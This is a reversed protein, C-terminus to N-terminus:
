LTEVPMGIELLGLQKEPDSMKEGLGSRSFYWLDPGTDIFFAGIKKPNLLLKYSIQLCVM